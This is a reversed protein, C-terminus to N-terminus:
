RTFRLFLGTGAVIVGAILYFVSYINMTDAIVGAMIPGIIMGLSMALMLMAMTSGMGYTRGQEVALATVAPMSVAGGIGIAFSVGLLQWFSEAMPITALSSLFIVSGIVVLNRRKFRDAIRGGIPALLSMLLVTVAILVGILSTSLGVYTGAFVPLFTMISGRGIAQVLRISFIGKVMNSRSMERYSYHRSEVTKQRYIEPLFLFAIISALLTLSGMSYFAANMGFQETLTGGILPGFGFGSFFAANAYGMWRGEEGKPSIDGVYAQAIPVIMAGAIGQVLRVLSLQLASDAMIFGLSTASYFLLGISLFLKRGKRDSLKGIIPTSISNTVGFAAFIIGLWIGSAGMNQAYIPLLPTIIGVGLMASFMCLALIPFAKKIM